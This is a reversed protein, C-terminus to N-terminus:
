STPLRRLTLRVVDGGPGRRERALLGYLWGFAILFPFTRAYLANLNPQLRAISSDVLQVGPVSSVLRSVEVDDYWRQFFARGDGDREGSDVYAATERYEIWAERAYPLTLLITGESRTCRVLEALAEEDGREGGVHELVSISSAHDFSGDTFPLARGDGVAFTLGPEGGALQRWSEVESELQDVTTVEVGRRALSVALLKPSALDLLTDGRAGSLRELAWPLELYRSPDMPIVIRVVAEKLYGHRVLQRAGLGVSTRFLGVWGRM